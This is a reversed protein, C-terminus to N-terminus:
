GLSLIRTAHLISLPSQISGSSVFVRCDVDFFFFRCRAVGVMVCWWVGGEFLWWGGVLVISV